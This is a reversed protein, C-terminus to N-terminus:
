EWADGWGEEEDDAKKATSKETMAKKVATAAATRSALPAATKRSAPATAKVNSSSKSLGKPLPKKSATKAASQASLWGAFDPEGSDDFTAASATKPKSEAWPDEEEDGWAAGFDEDDLTDETNSFPNSSTSPRSSISLGSPVPTINSTARGLTPRNDTSQRPPASSSREPAAPVGNAGNATQMQGSASSMKNTFSSIAWGAWSGSDAAMKPTNTGNSGTAGQSSPPPLVTEPLTQQYKRIKQLFVEMTKGAQDRILKEKDVLSPCVSPLFKTACDEESFLDATAALAMLAANRAHVFPDRLSRTFAASLVKTRTHTGIHKAIKGLCITTNTRIGPQEDNATKALHRLLEGNIVRDSLKPVVSLVAMVTKERVVPVVDSFGTVMQPFIKDSVIKQPLHDIMLPLNELLCVRIARDPLLFLRVVVPTIQTDYEEDTLRQSIKMVIGFVKPGGGGFEVSKILEPLIKMKMFEEPYDDSIDDLQSSFTLRM